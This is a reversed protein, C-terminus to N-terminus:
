RSNSDIPLTIIEGRTIRKNIYTHIEQATKTGAGDPNKSYTVVTYGMDGAAQLLADDYSAGTPFLYKPTVGASQEFIYDM